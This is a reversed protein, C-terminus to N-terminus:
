TDLIDTELMTDWQHCLIQKTMDQEDTHMDHPISHQSIHFIFLKWPERLKAVEPIVLLTLM